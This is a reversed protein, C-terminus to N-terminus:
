HFFLKAFPVELNLYIIVVAFVDYAAHAIMVPWIRRLKAYAIGFALGTVSAQAAGPWGQDVLHASAFVLSTVVVTIILAVRTTGLFARFREFLFGRFILEEGIGGGVIVFALMRAMAAANGTIFQYAHNVPDIGLAPQVIAKTFVKLMIGGAVGAAVDMAWSGPRVFGLEAWRTRTIARWALVLAAGVVNGVALVIVIPAFGALGTGKLRGALAPRRERDTASAASGSVTM